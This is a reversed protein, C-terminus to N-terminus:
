ECVWLKSSAYGTCKTALTRVGLRGINFFFLAWKENLCLFLPMDFIKTDDTKWAGELWWYNIKLWIKRKDTWGELSIDYPCNRLWTNTSRTWVQKNFFNTNKPQVFHRFVWESLKEWVLKHNPVETITGVGSTPLPVIYEFPNKKNLCNQGISINM